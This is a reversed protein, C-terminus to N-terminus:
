VRTVPKSGAPLQYNMHLKMGEALAQWKDAQGEHEESDVNRGRVRARHLLSVAQYAIWTPNVPSQASDTSLVSPSVSGHIRIRRGSITTWENRNIQLRQTTEPLIRWASTPM